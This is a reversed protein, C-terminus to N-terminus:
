AATPLPLSTIGWRCRRPSSRSSGPLSGRSTRDRSMAAAAPGCRSSWTARRTSCAAFTSMNRAPLRAPGQRPRSPPVAPSDARRGELEDIEFTGNKNKDIVPAVEDFSGVKIRSGPDGGGAWSAIYVTGDDGIAPSSCAARAIGRVTWLEKGTRFDYGVIRLTAAVIIQRRGDVEAIVPTCYNRPFESRDTKWVTEGTYKDIATLFSDTDHDQCLIVWDEVIIPSIAAGFDNNFPGMERKWLLEGESDYCYLGSSGFFSAVRQGDTAPTAQALSGIAHIRELSRHPAEVEWLVKGSKRDLGLTWLKGDRVATLYIREGYVVPSSHGPPLPVKWIVNTGPGIQAPLAANSVSRASGNVGRFQPWVEEPPLHASASTAVALLVVCVVAQRM